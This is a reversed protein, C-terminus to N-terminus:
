SKVCHQRLKAQLDKNHQVNQKAGNNRWACIISICTAHYIASQSQTKEGV